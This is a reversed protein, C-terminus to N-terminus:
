DSDGLVLTTAPSRCVSRPWPAAQSYRSLISTCYLAGNKVLSHRCLVQSNDNFVNVVSISYVLALECVCTYGAGGGM